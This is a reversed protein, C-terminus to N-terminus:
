LRAAQVNEKLKRINVMVENYCSECLDIYKEVGSVKTRECRVLTTGPAFDPNIWRGIASIRYAFVDSNQEIETECCDCYTKTM